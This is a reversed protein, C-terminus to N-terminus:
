VSTPHSKAETVRRGTFSSAARVQSKDSQLNADTHSCCSGEHTSRIRVAACSGASQKHAHLSQFRLRYTQMLLTINRARKDQLFGGYVNRTEQKSTCSPICQDLLDLHKLSGAAVCRRVKENISLHIQNICLLALLVLQTCM